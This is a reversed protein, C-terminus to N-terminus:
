IFIACFNTFLGFCHSSRSSPLWDFALTKTLLWIAIAPTGNFIPSFPSSVYLSGQLMSNPSLRTLIGTCFARVLPCLALSSSLLFSASITSGNAKAAYWVFTATLCRGRRGKFSGKSKRHLCYCANRASPFM